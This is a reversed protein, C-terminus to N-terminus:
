RIVPPGGNADYYLQSTATDYIFSANGASWAAMAGANTGDYAAAITTFNTGDILTGASIGFAGSSFSFADTGTAFDALLDAIAGASAATQNSAVATGDTTAQYYFTDSGAGGYLTDNGAGGLLTDAGLGGSIYDNMAGGTLTDVGAGGLLTVIGDTEANANFILGYSSSLATGDVTMTAGSSVNADHSTISWNAGGGLVISEVDFLSSSVLSMPSASSAFLTDVGNGGEITDNAAWNAAMNFTDNGGGGAFHDMGGQSNNFTDAYISGLVHDNGAGDAVTMSGYQAHIFFSGDTEASGDFILANGPVLNSGDITLVQGSAVTANHTTINYNGGSNLVISEVDVVTTAGFTITTGGSFLLRDAGTGGDIRDNVGLIGANAIFTDDGGQGLMVEDSTANGLLFTDALAGGTISMGYGPDGGIFNLYGDTEASANFTLDDPNAIASADLTLTQGSGITADDTTLTYSFSGAVIKITEVNVITTAGLTINAGGTLAVVDAGAGGDVQDATTFNGAITVTDNGDGATVTDSGFGMTIVDAQAGGTMTDSGAGGKITLSGNTEGSGDFVLSSGSALASGDVNLGHGSAVTADDTTVDYNAGGSFFLTEVNLVTSAGFTIMAGGSFRFTDNGAGGDIVDTAVLGDLGNFTDDGGGGSVTDNGVLSLSFTDAQAGGAISQHAVGGSINFGGDTEASGDFILTGGSAMLSNDITLQGGCAVTADHIALNIASANVIEIVEVNQVTAAGLTITTNGDIVLTDNTGLGGDIVDGLSFDGGLISITDFGNGASVTDDGTGADLVDGAAGGILTDNGAGGFVILTGDMEASADFHLDQGPTLATADVVLTQGSAINGDHTTISYTGADLILSEVAILSSVGLAVAGGGSAAVTDVGIGGDAIDTADWADGFDIFDDGGGALITDGGGIGGMILDIGAGATVTDNGTSGFIQFQGDTEASGDFTLTETPNTMTSADVVLMEGSAVTTAHTTINYSGGSGLIITEIEVVASEAIAVVAGGSAELVDMTGAGGRFTDAASWAQGVFIADDGAGGDVTDNGGGAVDFTDDLIGGILTDDGAGDIMVFNGDTEGSGDIFVSQSSGLNQADIVLTSGAVNADSTTIAHSAGAALVITEIGQITLAGMTVNTSGTAIVKDIGAGGNITDAASLNAYITDDGAQTTIADSGADVDVTDNASGTYILDNLAGSGTVIVHRANGGTFLISANTEADADFLVTAGTALSTTDVVFQAGSAMTADHTTIDYNGGASLFLTEVNTITSAGLTVTTGASLAVVDATGAGGDLRDNADLYSAAFLTDNGGGGSATDAGSGLSLLDGQAGGTVTDNGFGGGISFLGDTEASGDFRLSQTPSLTSANVVLAGGSAVTTDATTLDYNGGPQLFLTEFGVVSSAGFTLTAGGSAQLVDGTGAGGDFRDGATWGDVAVVDNGSGAIVTDDGTGILVTDGGGGGTITDNGAGDFAITRGDTELSADLVLNDTPGQNSFDHLGTGGSAVASDLLTVNWSAAAFQMTEINLIQSGGLTVAGGGSFILTDVGAGGDYTDGVGLDDAYITDQGSGAQVVDAGAGVVFLDNGGAGKFTDDGSGGYFANNAHDSGVVVEIGTLTDVGGWGDVVTGTGAGTLVATIGAISDHYSAIDGAGTGGDITDNGGYGEFSENAASSGTLIDAYFQSGDVGEIGVITDTGGQGDHAIGTALNVTVGAEAFRYSATDQGAGGDIYDNGGDGEFDDDGTGGILSNAFASGHVGDINSLTDIGGWGDTASGTALDVSVGTPSHRYSAQNFGAGGDIVDNGGLGELREFDGAYIEGGSNQGGILTDALASGIVMEIDILTDTNGWGDIATGTALNVTVGAVDNRYSVEDLGLGGDILDNGAGGEFYEFDWANNGGYIVDDLASGLVGNINLLTDTNGFGDLALGASLDVSV